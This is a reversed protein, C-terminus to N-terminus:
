KNVALPLVAKIRRPSPTSEHRPQHCERERYRGEDQCQAVPPARVLKLAVLLPAVVGNARELAAQGCQFLRRLQL